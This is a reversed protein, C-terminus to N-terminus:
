LYKRKRYAEPLIFVYDINGPLSSGEFILPFTFIMFNYWPCYPLYRDFLGPLENKLKIDELM